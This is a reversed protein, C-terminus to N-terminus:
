RKGLLRADVNKSLFPMTILAILALLIFLSHEFDFISFVLCFSFIGFNIVLTFHPVFYLTKSEKSLVAFRQFNSSM